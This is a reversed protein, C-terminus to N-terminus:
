KLESAVVSAIHLIGKTLNFLIENFIGVQYANFSSIQVRRPSMAGFRDVTQNRLIDAEKSRLWTKPLGRIRVWVSRSCNLASTGTMSAVSPLPAGSSNSGHLTIQGQVKNQRNLKEPGSKCSSSLYIYLYTSLYISLPKEEHYSLLRLLFVRKTVIRTIYLLTRVSKVTIDLEIIQLLWHSM